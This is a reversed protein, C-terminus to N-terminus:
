PTVAKAAGYKSFLVRGPDTRERENMTIRSHRKAHTQTIYTEPGLFRGNADRAVDGLYEARTKRKAARIEDILRQKCRNAIYQLDPDADWKTRKELESRVFAACWPWRGAFRRAM